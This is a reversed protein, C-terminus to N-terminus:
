YETDLKNESESVNYLDEIKAALSFDKESLGQVDHTWLELSVQNYYIHFDPHHKAEEALQGVKNVFDLAELFNAFKFTKNIKLEDIDAWETLTRLKQHIIESTLAQNEM